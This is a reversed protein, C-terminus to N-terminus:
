YSGEREGKKWIRLQCVARVTFKLALLDVNLEGVRAHSGVRESSKWFTPRTRERKQVVGGGFVLIEFSWSVM